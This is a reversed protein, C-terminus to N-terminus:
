SKTQSGDYVVKQKLKTRIAGSVKFNLRYNAPQFVSKGLHLMHRKRGKTIKLEFKGINNIQIEQGFLLKNFIANETEWLVLRVQKREMNLEEAIEKDLDKFTM